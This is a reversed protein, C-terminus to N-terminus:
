LPSTSSHFILESSVVFGLSYMYLAEGGDRQVNRCLIRGQTKDDSFTAESMKMVGFVGPFLFGLTRNGPTKALCFEMQIKCLSFRLPISIARLM